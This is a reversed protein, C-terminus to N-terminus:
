WAKRRKRRQSRDSSMPTAVCRRCAERILIRVIGYLCCLGEVGSGIEALRVIMRQLNQMTSALFCVCAGLLWPVRWAMLLLVLALLLLAIMVIAWRLRRQLRAVVTQERKLLFNHRRLSITKVGAGVRADPICRTNGLMGAKSCVSATEAETTSPSQGAMTAGPDESSWARLMTLPGHPLPVPLARAAHLSGRM